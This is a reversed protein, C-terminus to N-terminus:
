IGLEVAKAIMSAMNRTGLKMNIVGIRSKMGAVSINQDDAAQEISMGQKLARISNVEFYKLGSAVSCLKSRHPCKYVTCTNNFGDATFKGNKLDAESDIGGAVCKWWREFGESFGTLGIVNEIYNRRKTDSHYIMAWRNRDRLPLECYRCAIGEMLLWKKDIQDNEVWFAEEEGSGILGAPLKTTTKTQHLNTKMNLIILGPYTNGAGTIRAKNNM